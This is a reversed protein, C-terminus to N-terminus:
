NLKKELTSFILDVLFNRVHKINKENGFDTLSPLNNMFFDQYHAMEIMTTALSRPYVYGPNYEIFIQSIRSCLNKYPMFLQEKNDESVHKTLYVKSSESIIIEHLDELDIDQRAHNTDLQWTLIQITVKIKKEADTLNNTNFMVQYDLWHWYWSVIYNLLRLKNEFYRYITAETTGTEEALKKFTFLEFGIKRILSIGNSIIKKGIESHDPDKLYLKENMKPHLQWEM